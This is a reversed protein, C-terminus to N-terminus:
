ILVKENNQAKIQLSPDPGPDADFPFTPDPGADFHCDLDPIADFHCYPDPDADLHHPDAVNTRRIQVRESQVPQVADDGKM